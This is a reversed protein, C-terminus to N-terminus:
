VISSSIDMGCYERIDHSFDIKSYLGIGIAFQTIFSFIERFLAGHNDYIPCAVHSIEHLVVYMILNMDHLEGTKKSRLCFIIKEGKNVSYSTYMSDDNNEIIEINKAKDYLRKIYPFLKDQEKSSTYMESSIRIINQRIRALMNAANQSGKVDRVYYLQSDIDSKVHIM